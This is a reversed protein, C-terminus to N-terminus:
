LTLRHKNTVVAREIIVFSRRPFRIDFRLSGMVSVMLSFLFFIMGVCKRRCVWESYIKDSMHSTTLILSRKM